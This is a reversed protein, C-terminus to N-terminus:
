HRSTSLTHQNSNHLCVDMHNDGRVNEVIMTYLVNNMRTTNIQYYIIVFLCIIMNWEVHNAQLQKCAQIYLPIKM